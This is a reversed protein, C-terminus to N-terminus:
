ISFVRKVIVSNIHNIQLVEYVKKMENNIDSVQSTCKWVSGIENALDSVQCTGESISKMKIDIGYSCEYPGEWKHNRM